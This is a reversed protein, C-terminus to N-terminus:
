EPLTLYQITLSFRILVIEIGQSPTPDGNKFSPLIGNPHYVTFDSPDLLNPKGVTFNLTTPLEKVVASNSGSLAIGSDSSFITLYRSTGRSLEKCQLVLPVRAAETFDGEHKVYFDSVSFSYLRSGGTVQRTERILGSIDVAQTNIFTTDPTGEMIIEVYRQESDRLSNVLTPTLDNATM